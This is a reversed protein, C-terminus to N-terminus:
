GETEGGDSGVVRLRQVLVSEEGNQDFDALLVAVAERVLRGRDVVLDHKARLTLRAQEMAVLEDGSVYVTIKADHKTRGSGHPAASRALQDARDDGAPKPQPKEVPEPPPQPPLDLAPSATSTTIRFLESAGPLSARRSM